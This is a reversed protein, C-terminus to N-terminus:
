LKSILFEAFDLMDKQRNALIQAKYPELMERPLLDLSQAGKCQLAYDIRFPMDHDRLEERIREVLEENTEEGEVEWVAEVALERDGTLRVSTKGSYYPEYFDDLLNELQHMQYNAEVLCALFDEKSEGRPRHSFIIYPYLNNDLHGECSNTTLFGHATLAVVVRRVNPEIGLKLPDQAIYAQESLNVKEEAEALSIRNLKFNLM